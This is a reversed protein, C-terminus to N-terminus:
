SKVSPLKLETWRIMGGRMNFVKKYGKQTAYETAQGSRGGSRCIFVIEESTDGKDVFNQLDPGLTVLEAGAVHGFEGNFEDPRRVDILRVKKSKWDALKMASSLDEPTIEPIGNELRAQFMTPGKTRGCSMNAPLAEHIKKPQALNLESMMKKFDDKTRGGGLRPNHAKEAGITSSTHGRYDHAPYVRTDEPLRFLKQTVSDFLADSSGQQFDTRGTGRVLLTDGTFVLGGGDATKLYLSLCSNTHGPTEIVNLVHAGFSIRDGEKLALDSCEVGARSSVATKVRGSLRDRITGAATVHDAHVHTDVVCVLNLRLEDILQLDREVTELVPDILVAERSREDAVVYTYTSSEHEFLQHFILAGM